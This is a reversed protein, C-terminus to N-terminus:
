PGAEKRMTKEVCIKFVVFLKLILSIHFTNTVAADGAAAMSTSIHSVHQPPFADQAM